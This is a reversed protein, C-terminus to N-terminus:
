RKNIIHFDVKELFTVTLVVDFNGKMSLRYFCANAKLRSPITSPVKHYTSLKVLPVFLLKIGLRGQYRFCISSQILHCKYKVKKMHDLLQGNNQDFFILILLNHSKVFVVLDSGARM